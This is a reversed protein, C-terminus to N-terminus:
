NLGFKCLDIVIINRLQFNQYWCAVSIHVLDMTISIFIYQCSSAYGRENSTIFHCQACVYSKSSVYWTTQNRQARRQRRKAFNRERKKTSTDSPVFSVVFYKLTFNLLLVRHHSFWHVVKLKRRQASAVHKMQKSREMATAAKTRTYLTQTHYVCGWCQM